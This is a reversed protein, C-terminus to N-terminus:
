DIDLTTIEADGWGFNEFTITREVNYGLWREQSIIASRNEELFASYASIPILKRETTTDTKYTIYRYETKYDSDTFNQSYKIKADDSIPITVYYIQTAKALDEEYSDGEYLFVTARINLNVDMEIKAWAAEDEGDLQLKVYETLKTSNPDYIGGWTKDEPVAEGSWGETAYSDWNTQMNKLAMIDLVKKFDYVVYTDKLMDAIDDNDALEPVKEISGGSELDSYNIYGSTTDASKGDSLKYYDWTPSVYYNYECSLEVDVIDASKATNAIYQAYSYVVYRERSGDDGLKSEAVRGMASSAAALIISGVVACIVFLLLAAILSAGRNNSKRDTHVRM